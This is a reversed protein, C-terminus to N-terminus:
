PAKYAGDITFQISDDADLTIVGFTARIYMNGGTLADFLGVETIAANGTATLTGTVRYTDNNTYTQVISSTGAVRAEGRPTQLATNGDAPATTGTGWHVYKPEAGEGKVRKATIERGKAVMLAPM